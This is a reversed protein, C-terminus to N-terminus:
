PSPKGVKAFSDQTHMRSLASSRDNAGMRHLWGPEGDALYLFVEWLGLEWIDCPSPNTGRNRRGGVLVVGLAIWVTHNDDDGM